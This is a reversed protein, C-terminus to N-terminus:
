HNRHKWDYFERFWENYDAGTGSVSGTMTVNGADNITIGGTTDITSQITKTGAGSFTMAGTGLIASSITTNGSGGITWNFGGRTPSGSITLLNASNNTWSQNTGSRRRAGLDNNRGYLTNMLIGSGGLTLQSGAAGITLTGTSATGDGIVVGNVSTTGTTPNAAPSAYNTLKFRAIDTTLDNAPAVGGVWNSGTAWTSNSPTTWDITNANAVSGFM